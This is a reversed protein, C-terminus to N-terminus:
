LESTTKINTLNSFKSKIWNRQTDSKVIIECDNPVTSFMYNYSTVSDFTFNRIDLKKLSNCYIFMYSMDTVKTTYFHSLDLTELAVCYYFMQYMTTMNSSDLGSLDLSKLTNQGFFTLANPSVMSTDEITINQIANSMQSPKLLESTNSKNRIADAINTLNQETVLVKSM